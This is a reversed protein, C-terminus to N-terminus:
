LQFDEGESQPLGLDLDTPDQGEFSRSPGSARGRSLGDQERFKEHVREGALTRGPRHPDFDEGYIERQAENSKEEFAAQIAAAREEPMYGLISTGLRVPDGDAKRCITYGRTTGESDVKRASLFKARMGDPVYERALERMPDSADMPEMGRDLDEGRRNIRNSVEDVVIRTHAHEKGEHKEAYGQDTMEWPFIGWLHEPIPEGNITCNSLHRPNALDEPFVGEPANFPKSDGVGTSM